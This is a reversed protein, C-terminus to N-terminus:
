SHISIDTDFWTRYECPYSVDRNRDKIEKAPNGVAIKWPAIDRTVISGAGIVAGEGITVGPLIIARTGIWVYDGITTLGGSVAFGPDQPDHGMSLMTVEPSISCNEGIKLGLRGDFFCRRNVITERGVEIKGGTFFCGMHLSCTKDIKYRLIHRYYLNRLTFSPVAAMFHNAFALTVARIFKTFSM